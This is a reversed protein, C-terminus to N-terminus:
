RLPPIRNVVRGRGDVGLMEWVIGDHLHVEATVAPEPFGRVIGATISFPDAANLNVVYGLDQLSAVTVRSLPMGGAKAFGQMLEKGFISQRWHADRTGVPYQNGEVPVPNGSAFTVTNISRFAALTTPGTFYPAASGADALLTRGGVRWLSGVGLVHGMEHLVVDGFTGDTIMSPVDYEDFEMLGTTTLLDQTNYLCPGARALTNLGNTGGSDIPGIRAFIVVDSITENIAPMWSVCDGPARNLTSNRVHGVIMRRWKAAANIFAQRVATTGGTGIFRVDINFASTLGTATFTVSKGPLSTSTAILTQTSGTGLVWSGVIAVGTAPDSSIIGNLVSGSNPGPTFTVPINGVANGYSDVVKVGPPTPIPTGTVGEQADGLAKVLNAAPGALAIANFSAQLASGSTAVATQLGAITGLKWSTATANGTSNTVQQAGDITGGGTASSFTVPVGPIPNGYIDRAQVSPPSAVPTNVTSRQDDPSLRVLTAVAGPAVQATFTVSSLGQASATLTQAGAATGLKWGGSLAVGSKDTTSSDNVVTGSNAGPVWRVTIGKIGRGKADLIQVQPPAGVSNAVTGSMQLTTGSAPTFTTPVQPGDGACGILGVLLTLAPIVHRVTM